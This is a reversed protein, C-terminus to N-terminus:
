RRKGPKPTAARAASKVKDKGKQGGKGKKKGKGNGKGKSSGKGQSSARSSTRSSTKPKEIRVTRSGKSSARSTSRASSSRRPKPEREDHPQHKQVKFEKALDPNDRLLHAIASSPAKTSGSGNGRRTSELVAVAILEKLEMANYKEEAAIVAKERKAAKEKEKEQKSTTKPLETRYTLEGFRETSQKIFERTDPSCINGHKVLWSDVEDTLVKYASTPNVREACIRRCEAQHKHVFEWCEASHRERLRKFSEHIDFSDDMDTVDELDFSMPLHQAENVYVKPWQWRLKETDTFSRHKMDKAQLAKYKEHLAEQTAYQSLDHKLTKSWEQFTPRLSPDLKRVISDPDEWAHDALSTVHSHHCLQRLLQEVAGNDAPPPNPAKSSGAATDRGQSRARSRARPALQEIAPGGRSGYLHQQVFAVRESLPVAMHPSNTLNVICVKLQNIREVRDLCNHIAPGKVYRPYSDTRTESTVALEEAAESAGFHSRPPRWSEVSSDLM